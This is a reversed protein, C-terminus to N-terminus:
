QVKTLFGNKYVDFRALFQNPTEDFVKEAVSFLERTDYQSLKTKEEDSVKKGYKEVVPRTKSFDDIQQVLTQYDLLEKLYMKHYPGNIGTLLAGQIMKDCLLFNISNMDNKMKHLQQYFLFEIRNLLLIRVIQRETLSALKELDRKYLEIKVAIVNAEESFMKMKEEDSKEYLRSTISSLHNHLLYYAIEDDWLLGTCELEEYLNTFKETFEQSTM